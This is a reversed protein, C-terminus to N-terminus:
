ALGIIRDSAEGNNTEESRRAAKRRKVLYCIVKFSEVLEVVSLLSMGMYLGLIGGIDSLLNILPYAIVEVIRNSFKEVQPVIELKAVNKRFLRERDEGTANLVNYWPLLPHEALRQRYPGELFDKILGEVM